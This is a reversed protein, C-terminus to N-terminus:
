KRRRLLLNKIERIEKEAKKNVQFDYEARLRDKQAGRNQSMLIIPAQIAALCSLALNLLIFPYPDVMNGNIYKLVFIGNTVIWIGIFVLFLIIFTWSGASKTLADAARQGFTKQARFIPHVEKVVKKIRIDGKKM